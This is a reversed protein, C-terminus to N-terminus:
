APHQDSRLPSGSKDSISYLGFRNEDQGNEITMGAGYFTRPLSWCSDMSGLQVHFRLNYHGDNNTMGACAPIWAGWKHKPIVGNIKIM